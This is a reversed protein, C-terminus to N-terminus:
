NPFSRTWSWRRTLLYSLLNSRDVPYTHGSNMRQRQSCVKNLALTRKSPEFRIKHPYNHPLVDRHPDFSERIGGLAFGPGHNNGEPENETENQLFFGREGNERQFACSLNTTNAFSCSFRSNPPFRLRVHFIPWSRTPGPLTGWVVKDFWKVRTLLRDFTPAWSFSQAAGLGLHHMQVVFLLSFTNLNKCLSHGNPHHYGVSHHLIVSFTFWKPQAGHPTYGKRRAPCFPIITMKPCFQCVRSKFRSRLPPDMKDMGSHQFLRHGRELHFTHNPCFIVNSGGAM